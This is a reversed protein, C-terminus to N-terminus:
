AELRCEIPLKDDRIGKFVPQRLGDKESPMFEVTCVMPNIWIANEHGKPIGNSLPCAATKMGHDKLKSLSVGLTVHNTIVLKDNQDYLALILSTMHNAKPIYGVVIYERDAMVKCKKWDKTRKGFWYLSNKKKGVIGELNEQEAVKYLAKGFIDIYRSKTIFQNESIIKEIINIREMLPFENVLHDKYYIIDYVVFNAPKMSAALHIKFPDTLMSRRQVEYFDPKGNALVNLEGDLICKEKCNKFIEALEPFRPLLKVNRKNRFDASNHDCYSLSRIGDIKFEFISGPDDYPDVQESILMPAIGKQDFIDTNMM